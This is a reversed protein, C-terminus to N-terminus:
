SNFLDDLPNGKGVMILNKEKLYIRLTKGMEIQVKDFVGFESARLILSVVAMM